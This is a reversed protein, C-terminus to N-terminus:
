QAIPQNAPPLPPPRRTKLKKKSNKKKKIIKIIKTHFPLSRSLVFSITRHLISDYIKIRKENRIM